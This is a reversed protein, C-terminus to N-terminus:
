AIELSTGKTKEMFSVISGGSDQNETKTKTRGKITDKAKM